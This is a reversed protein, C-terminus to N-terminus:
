ERMSRGPVIPPLEVSSFQQIYGQLLKIQAERRYGQYLAGSWYLDPNYSHQNLYFPFMGPMATMNPYRVGGYQQAIREGKVAEQAAETLKQQTYPTNLDVRSSGNAVQDMIPKFAQALLVDSLYLRFYPNNPSADAAQRLVKEQMALQEAGLGGMRKAFDLPNTRENVATFGQKARDAEQISSLSAQIRMEDVNQTYNNVEITKLGPPLYHPKRNDAGGKYWMYFGNNDVWSSIAVGNQPYDKIRLTSYNGNWLKQDFQPDNYSLEITGSGPQVPRDGPRTTDTPRAQQTGIKDFSGWHFDVNNGLQQALNGGGPKDPM